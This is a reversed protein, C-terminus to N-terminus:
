DPMAFFPPPCFARAVPPGPMRGSVQVAMGHGFHVTSPTGARRGIFRSLVVGCASRTEGGM